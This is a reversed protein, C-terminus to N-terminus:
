FNMYDIYLEQFGEAEALNLIEIQRNKVGCIDDPVPNDECLLRRGLCLAGALATNGGTVTKDALERPLLGIQAADEPKLYYGFGGALVVRDIEKLCIGYKQTLIRIGAAIAGKALQIARVSQQTVCVDGIRIGTEFYPDALLGTEDLLGRRQLQALLSVMDAGWVGRNAGGEFAPGAATSCALLRESNGLVMEGNTGLDILLTIEQKELMKCALMGAVIDGGVFASLGGFIYCPTEAITTQIAGLRSAHFPAHGLEQVDWGMLLYVMTTNAAIVMKMSEGEALKRSFRTIGQRLVLETMQQMRSADAPNEAAQIRSLVDAGYAAQPNLVAYRDDVTGDAAYMQMAITTTGVDVAVLREKSASQLPLPDEAAKETVIHVQKGADCCRGCGTCIHCRTGKAATLSHKKGLDNATNQKGDTKM